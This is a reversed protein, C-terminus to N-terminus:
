LTCTIKPCTAPFSTSFATLDEAGDPPPLPHFFKTLSSASSASIKTSRSTHRPSNNRSGTRTARDRPPRLSRHLSAPACFVLPGRAQRGLLHQSPHPTPPYRPGASRVACVLRRRGRRPGGMQVRVRTGLHSPLGPALTRSAARRPPRPLLWIIKPLLLSHGSCPVKWPQGYCFSFLLPDVTGLQGDRFTQCKSPFCGTTPFVEWPGHNPFCGRTPFKEMMLLGYHYGEGRGFKLPMSYRAVRGPYYTILIACQWRANCLAPSWQLLTPGDIIVCHGPPGGFVLIAPLQCHKYGVTRGSYLGGLM